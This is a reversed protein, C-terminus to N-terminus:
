CPTLKETQLANLVRLVKDVNLGIPLDNCSDWPIKGGPDVIHTAGLTSSIDTPLLVM